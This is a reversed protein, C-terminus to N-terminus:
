LATRSTGELLLGEHTVRRLAATLIALATPGVFAVRELDVEITAARDLSLIPSLDRILREIQSLPYGGALRL